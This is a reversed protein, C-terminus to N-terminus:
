TRRRLIALSLAIWSLPNSALKKHMYDILEKVWNHLSISCLLAFHFRNKLAFFLPKQEM